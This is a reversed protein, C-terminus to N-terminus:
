VFSCLFTCYGLYAYFNTREAVSGSVISATAAVFAWQSLFSDWPAEGPVFDHLAFGFDGIFPNGPSSGYAFAYGFLYFCLSGVCADMVNKMLINMTNKTRVAGACLMAFGAQMFFVLYASFLLYTSNLGASLDATTPEDIPQRCALEAFIRAQNEAIGTQNVLADVIVTANGHTPFGDCFIDSSKAACAL